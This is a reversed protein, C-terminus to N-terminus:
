SGGRSAPAPSAGAGASGREGISNEHSPPASREPADKPFGLFNREPTVVPEVNRDDHRLDPGSCGVVGSLLAAACAATALKLLDRM